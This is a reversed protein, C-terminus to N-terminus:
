VRRLLRRMKLAHANRVESAIPGAIQVLEDRWQNQRPEANPTTDFFVNPDEIQRFELWADAKQTFQFIAAITEGRGVNEIFGLRILSARTQDSLEGMGVRKRKGNLLLLIAAENATIYVISITDEADEAAFRKDWVDLTAELDPDPGNNSPFLDIVNDRPLM